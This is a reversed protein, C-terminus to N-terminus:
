AGAAFEKAFLTHEGRLPVIGEVRNRKERPKGGREQEKEGTRSM